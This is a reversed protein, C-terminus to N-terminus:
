RNACWDINAGAFKEEGRGRVVRLSEKQGELQLMKTIGLYRASLGLFNVVGLMFFPMADGLVRGTLLHREVSSIPFSKREVKLRVLRSDSM